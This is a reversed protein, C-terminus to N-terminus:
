GHGAGSRRNRASLIIHQELIGKATGNYVLLFLGFLWLATRRDTVRAEAARSVLGVSWDGGM